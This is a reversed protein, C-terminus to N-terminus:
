LIGSQSLYKILLMALLVILVIGNLILPLNERKNNKLKWM